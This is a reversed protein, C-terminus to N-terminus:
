KAGEVQYADTVVFFVKKDIKKIGATVKYYERSPIVTLLIKKKQELFGGRVDFVTVTHEMTNMIYEKVKQEETTIIYFAKNDSIGLLVKDTVINNIYLYIIAYLVNTTGFFISGIIVITTNMVLNTKAISIKRKEFLVQSIVSLGGSNFGTKYILGNAFGGLVGAFVVLLLKDANTEFISVIPSTLEILLPYIISVILTAITEEKGLYMFSIIVCAISVLLVMLAPNIDYLYKTITAIGNAGGTVLGIPLLFWNFVLANIILSILLILYRIYKKEVILKKIEKNM